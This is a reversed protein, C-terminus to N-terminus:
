RNVLKLGKENYREGSVPTALLMQDIEQLEQASLAIESAAVNEALRKESTTGPIPVIFPKRHLVWALAIQAATCGHAEAFAKIKEVLAWNRNQNEASFRPIGRRIDNEPFESGPKVGGTLFGRGLPSFPVFGIGERELFPLIREEPERWWMSYESQLVTVPFVSSAAQIAAIGAESMGFWRVKGQAHLESVVGAVEQMPVDPDVRHQYLIDIYDTQLRRLSEEVTRRINEPRSCVPGRKGEVFSYGFKTAIFVRDRRGALAQGLMEENKFPGYVQATDFLTVGLDMARHVVGIAQSVPLSAGKSVAFQMCGYGVASVVPGNRGLQRTQM